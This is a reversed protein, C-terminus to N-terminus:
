VVSKRDPRLNPNSKLPSDSPNLSLFWWRRRKKKRGSVSLTWCKNLQMQVVCLCTKHVFCMFPHAQERACVCVCLCVCVCVQTTVSEKRSTYIVEGSRGTTLGPSAPYFRRPPPPPPSKGAKDPSLRREREVSPRRPKEVMPRPPREAGPQVPPEAPVPSSQAAETLSVCVM